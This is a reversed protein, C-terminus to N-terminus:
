PSQWCRQVLAEAFSERVLPLCVDVDAAYASWPQRWQSRPLSATILVSCTPRVLCMTELGVLLSLDKDARFLNLAHTNKHGLDCLTTGMQQAFRQWRHVLQAHAFLTPSAGRMRCSAVLAKMFADIDIRDHCAFVGISNPPGPLPKWPPTARSDTTPVADGVVTLKTKM